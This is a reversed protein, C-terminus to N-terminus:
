AEKKCFVVYDKSESAIDAENFDGCIKELKLASLKVLQRLEEEGCIHLAVSWSDSCWDGGSQEQWRHETVCHVQQNEGTMIAQLTDSWKAGQSGSALLTKTHVRRM